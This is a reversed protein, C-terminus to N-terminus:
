CGIKKKLKLNSYRHSHYAGWYLKTGSRSFCVGSLNLGQNTHHIVNQKLCPMDPSHFKASDEFDALYDVVTVTNTDEGIILL